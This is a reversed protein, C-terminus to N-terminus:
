QTLYFLCHEALLLTSEHCRNVLMGDETAGGHGAPLFLAALSRLLTTRLNSGVTTADEPTHRLLPHSTSSMFWLVRLLGQVALDVSANHNSLVGCNEASHPESPSHGVDATREKLRLAFMLRPISAFVQGLSARLVQEMKKAGDNGKQPNKDRCVFYDRIVAKCMPYESLRPHCTIGRLFFNDKEDSRRLYPYYDARLRWYEFNRLVYVNQRWSRHESIYENVKKEHELDTTKFEPPLLGHRERSEHQANRLTEVADKSLYERALERSKTLAEEEASANKHSSM